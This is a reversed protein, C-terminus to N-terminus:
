GGDRGGPNEDTIKALAVGQLRQCFPRNREVPALQDGVIDPIAIFGIRFLPHLRKGELFDVAHFRRVFINNASM